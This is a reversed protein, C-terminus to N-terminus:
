QKSKPESKVIIQFQGFISFSAFIGFKESNDHNNFNM